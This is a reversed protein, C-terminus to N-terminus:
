GTRGAPADVPEAALRAALGSRRRTARSVAARLAAASAFLTARTRARTVATYLLERTLVRSRADPLVVLVHDFESGQSKHVTMAFATEHEPLRVPAVLRYGGGADPFAVAFAGADDKVTLGVDGNFLRLLPDNRLVIVPRGVYWTPTPVGGPREGLAVRRSIAANLAVVGRPGDRVACLVLFRLFADTLAAPDASGGDLLARYRELGRLAAAVVADDPADPDDDVVRVEAEPGADLAIWPALEDARGEVVLRALQGIRSDPAFRWTRTLWIAGDPIPGPVPAPPVIRGVDVDALAALRARCADGLHADHSLDAFVSGAEVAALQDKDGLLVVRAGPPVAELLKTALALDLMSAEDVVLVDIPLPDDPGHVFGGTGRVRLLRHVTSANAPLRAAIEPPLHRARERIAEAMRAAAKGTPAALAIRCGPDADLLCALLNVVMTTKGTGPGGSVVAVGESLALAVALRQWDTEEGLTAANAAFLAGLRARLRDHAASLDPRTARLARLRRALRREYDFYRHLYLRGLADLVLPCAGPSAAPGVVRSDLLLARARGPEAPWDHSRPAGAADALAPVEDLEICVEGAACATSLVRAALSAAAIADPPAGLEASWRAVQM